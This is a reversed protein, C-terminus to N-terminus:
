GHEIVVKGTEGAAFTESATTMEAFPFRHSILDRILLGNAYVEMIKPIESNM